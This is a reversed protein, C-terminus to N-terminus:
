IGYAIWGFGHLGIATANVVEALAAGDVTTDVWFYQIKGSGANYQPILTTTGAVTGTSTIHLVDIKELGFQNPTVAFGGTVYNENTFGTGSNLRASRLGAKRVITISAAM